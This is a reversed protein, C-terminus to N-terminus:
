FGEGVSAVPSSSPMVNLFRLGRNERYISGKQPILANEKRIFQRDISVAIGSGCLSNRSEVILTEPFCLSAHIM